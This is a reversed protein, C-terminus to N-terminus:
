PAARAGVVFCGVQSEVLPDLGLWSANASERGGGIACPALGLATAVLYLNQLLCGVDKYIVSLAIREYKWMVRGFVATILLVAPADRSLASGAAQYVEQNVRRGGEEGVDLAVLHHARGDYYWAGRELGDVDNAVLYIELENRAGGAAFPRRVLTGAVPDAVAGVVRAAHFLLSSLRGLDLPAEAYTRITRRAALVESLAADVTVAEPLPVVRGPPTTKFGPPPPGRGRVADPDFGGLGGRRQVALEVPAWWSPGGARRPGADGESSEEPGPRAGPRRDVLGLGSLEELHGVTWKVDSGTLRGAPTWAALQSLLDLLDAGARFRRGSDCQEVVLDSGSWEVLLYPSRRYEAPVTGEAGVM